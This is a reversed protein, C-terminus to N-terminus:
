FIRPKIHSSAQLAQYQARRTKIYAAAAKQRLKIQKRIDNEPTSPPERDMREGPRTLPAPLQKLRNEAATNPTGYYWHHLGTFRKLQGHNKSAAPDTLLQRIRPYAMALLRKYQAMSIPADHPLHSVTKLTNLRRILHPNTHKGALLEQAEPTPLNFVQTLLVATITRPM